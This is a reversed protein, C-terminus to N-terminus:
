NQKKIKNECFSVIVKGHSKICCNYEMSYEIFRYFINSMLFQKNFYTKILGFIKNKNKIQYIHKKVMLIAYSYCIFIIYFDKIISM